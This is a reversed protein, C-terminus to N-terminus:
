VNVVKFKTVNEHDIYSFLYYMSYVICDNAFLRIQSQIKTTIDHIFILFLATGTAVSGQPVQLTLVAHPSGKIIM